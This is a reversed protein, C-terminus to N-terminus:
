PQCRNPKRPYLTASDIHPYKMIAMLIREFGLGYGGHSSPGFKSMEIYWYYPDPNINERRFGDEWKKYEDCRMSGGLVEGVGPFLLDCTQTGEKDRKVYFPKHELPFRTLFMPQGNALHECLFRESADAIDDDEVYFEGTPKQHKMKILFDIAEKHTVRMFPKESLEFFKFDPYVKLIKEKMIGYFETIM